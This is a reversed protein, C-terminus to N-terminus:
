EFYLLHFKFPIMRLWSGKDCYLYNQQNIHYIHLSHLTMRSSTVVLMSSYRVKPKSFYLKILWSFEYILCFDYSESKPSKTGTINALIILTVIMIHSVVTAPRTCLCSSAGSPTDWMMMVICRLPAWKLPIIQVLALLARGADKIVVEGVGMEGIQYRGSVLQQWM